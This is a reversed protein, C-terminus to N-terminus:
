DNKGKVCLPANVVFLLYYYNDGWHFTSHFWKQLGLAKNIQLLILAHPCMCTSSPCSIIDILPIWLCLKCASRAYNLSWGGKHHTKGNWHFRGSSDWSKETPQNWHWDLQCVLNVMAGIRSQSRLWYILCPPLQRFQGQVWELASHGQIQLEGVRADM